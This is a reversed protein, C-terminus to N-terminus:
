REDGNEPLCPEPEDLIVFQVPDDQAAMEVFMECKAKSDFGAKFQAHVNEALFPADPMLFWVVWLTAPSM